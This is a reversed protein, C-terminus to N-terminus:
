SKAERHGAEFARGTIDSMVVLDDLTISPHYEALFGRIAGILDSLEILAMLSAGQKLADDFEDVEEFIKSPEGFVGRPIESLHYGKPQDSEAM